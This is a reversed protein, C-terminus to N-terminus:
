NESFIRYARIKFEEPSMKYELEVKNGKIDIYSHVPSRCFPCSFVYNKITKIKNICNKCLCHNLFPGNEHICELKLLPVEKFCIGCESM